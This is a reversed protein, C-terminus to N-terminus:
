VSRHANSPAVNSPEHTTGSLETIREIITEQSSIVIMCYNRKAIVIGSEKMEKFINITNSVQNQYFLVEAMPHRKRLRSIAQSMSSRRCEIVYYQYGSSVDSMLKLFTFAHTAVWNQKSSRKKAVAGDDLGYSPEEKKEVPKCDEIAAQL